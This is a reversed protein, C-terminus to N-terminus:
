RDGTPDDRSVKVVFSTVRSPALSAWLNIRNANSVRRPRGRAPRVPESRFGRVASPLPRTSLPIRAVAEVAASSSALPRATRPSHPTASHTTSASGLRGSRPRGSRSSGTAASGDHFAHQVARPRRNPRDRHSAQMLSRTPRRLYRDDSCYQRILLDNRDAFDVGLAAFVEIAPLGAGTRPRAPGQNCFTVTTGWANRCDARATAILPSSCFTM